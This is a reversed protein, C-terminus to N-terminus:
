GGVGSGCLEPHRRLHEPVELVHIAGSVARGGGPVRHCLRSGATTRGGQRRSLGRNTAVTFLAKDEGGGWERPDM